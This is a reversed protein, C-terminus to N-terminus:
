CLFSFFIEWSCVYLNAVPFGPAIVGGVMKMMQDTAIGSGMHAVFMQSFPMVIAPSTDTLM